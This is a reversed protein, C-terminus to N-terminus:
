QNTFASIRRGTWYPATRASSSPHRNTMIHACRHGLNWFNWHNWENLDHDYFFRRYGGNKWNESLPQPDLGLEQAIASAEKPEELTDFIGLKIGAYLIQSRWRGFILDFLKSHSETMITQLLDSFLPYLVFEHESHILWGDAGLGVTFKSWEQDQVPVIISISQIPQNGVQLKESLRFKSSKWNGRALAGRAM